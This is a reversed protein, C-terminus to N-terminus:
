FEPKKVTSAGGAHGSQHRVGHINEPVLQMTVGDEKHHWTLSVGLEQELQAETKGTAKKLAEDAAKFDTTNNGSQVIEVQAKGNGIPVVFTSYDPHGGSYPISEHPKVGPNLKPNKSFDALNQGLTTNPEPTWAGDGRDGKWEGKGPGGLPTRGYHEGLLIRKDDICKQTKCGKIADDYAKKGKTRIDNWYKAAASKRLETLDAARALKIKAVKIAAELDNLKAAIKSGKAATKVGDGIIPVIGLFDFFAGGWDGKYLSKGLSALDAATGAPPPLWGGAALAADAALETYTDELQKLEKQAEALKAKESSLHSAM